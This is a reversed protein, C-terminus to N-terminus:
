SPCPRATSPWWSRYVRASPPPPAAPQAPSFSPPVLLGGPLAHQLATRCSFNAAERWSPQLVYVGLLFIIFRAGASSHRARQVSPAAAGAGRLGVQATKGTHTYVVILSAAVREAARVSASAISELKSLYPSYGMALFSGHPDGALAGGMAGGAGLHPLSAVSAVQSFKAMAKAAQTFSTLPPSLPRQRLSVM